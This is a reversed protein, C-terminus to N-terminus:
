LNVLREANGHAAAAREAETVPAAALFQTAVAMDEFPYDTGFLLFGWRSDLRWLVYPLGEGMHGLLVKADPFDDFVGGFVLRLFHFATDASM